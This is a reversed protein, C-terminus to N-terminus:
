RPQRDTDCLSDTARDRRRAYIRLRSGVPPVPGRGPIELIWRARGMSAFAGPELIGTATVVGFEDLSILRMSDAIGRGHVAGGRLLLASDGARIGILRDRFTRALHVPEIQWPGDMSEM